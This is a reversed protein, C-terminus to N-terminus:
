KNMGFQTLRPNNGNPVWEAPPKPYFAKTANRAQGVWCFQRAGGLLDFPVRMTIARGDNSIDAEIPLSDRWGGLEEDWFRINAREKDHRYQLKYEAGRYNRRQGTDTRCDSDVYFTYKLPKGVLGVDGATHFTVQLHAEEEQLAISVLDYDPFPVDGVFDSAVWQSIHPQVIIDGSRTEEEPSVRKGVNRWSAWAHTVVSPATVGETSVKFHLPSGDLRRELEAVSFSVERGNFSTMHPPPAEASLFTTGAPLPINIKLDWIRRGSVNRPYITYTIVEDAVTAVADLQLRSRPRQWNLPQKTIDISVDETLYDGPQDGQWSIWAHTTFVSLAPDTVEVVFFADKIYGSPFPTFFTVEKGNFDVRTTPMADAELFRTGEPLPVKIAINAMTWEVRSSFLLSYTIKGNEYSPTLRLSFPPWQAQAQEPMLVLTLWLVLSILLSLMRQVKTM